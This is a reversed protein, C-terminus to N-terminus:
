IYEGDEEEKISHRSKVSYQYAVVRSVLQAKKGTLRTPSDSCSEYSVQRDVSASRDPSCIEPLMCTDPIAETSSYSESIREMDSQKLQKELLDIKKIKRRLLTSQKKNEVELVDVDHASQRVVRKLEAKTVVLEEHQELVLKKLTSVLTLMNKAPELCAAFDDTASKPESPPGEEEATQVPPAPVAADKVKEDECTDVANEKAKVSTASNAARSAIPTNSEEPLMPDSLFEEKARKADAKERMRKLMAFKKSEQAKEVRKDLLVEVKEAQTEVEEVEVPPTKPYSPGVGILCAITDYPARFLLAIDLAIRDHKDVISPSHPCICVLYQLINGPCHYRAAVHIPTYGGQNQVTVGDGYTKVLVKVVELADDYQHYHVAYHLPINNYKPEPLSAAESYVELLLQIVSLSSKMWVAVHLPLKGDHNVIRAARPAMEIILMLIDSPAGYELALHLCTNGDHAMQYLLVNTGDMLDEVKVTAADIHRVLPFTDKKAVETGAIPKETNTLRRNMCEIIFRVVEITSGGQLCLNIALEGSVGDKKMIDDPSQRILVRVVDLCARYSIALQLPTRENSDRAYISEPFATLLLTVVADTANCACAFHIPLSSNKQERARCAEAHTELLLQIADVNAKPGATAASHLPFRGLTNQLTPSSPFISLLSKIVITDACNQMALHLPLNGNKARAMAGRPYKKLLFMAIKRGLLIDDRTRMLCCHLPLLSDCNMTEVSLPYCEVIKRTVNESGFCHFIPLNGKEDLHQACNPNVNLLSLISDWDNCAALSFILSM